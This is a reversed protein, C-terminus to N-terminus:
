DHKKADIHYNFIEKKVKGRGKEFGWGIFYAFVGLWVGTGILFFIGAITKMIFDLEM